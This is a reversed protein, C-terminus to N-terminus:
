EVEMRSRPGYDIDMEDLRQVVANPNDRYYLYLDAARAELEEKLAKYATTTAIRQANRNIASRVASPM